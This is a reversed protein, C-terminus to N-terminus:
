GVTASNRGVTRDLSSGKAYLATKRRRRKPCQSHFIQFEVLLDSRKEEDVWIVIENGLSTFYPNAQLTNCFCIVANRMHQLDQISRPFGLKAHEIRQMM